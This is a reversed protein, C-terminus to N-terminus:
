DLPLCFLAPKRVGGSKKTKTQKKHKTKAFFFFRCGRSGGFPPLDTLNRAFARSAVKGAGFASFRGAAPWREPILNLGAFLPGSRHGQANGPNGAGNGRCPAKLRYFFLYFFIFIIFVLVFFFILFFFRRNRKGRAGGGGELAWRGRLTPKGGSREATGGLGRKEETRSTSVRKKV